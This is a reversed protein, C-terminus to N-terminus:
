KGAFLKDFMKFTYINDIHWGCGMGPLLAMLIKYDVIYVVDSVGYFIGANVSYENLIGVIIFRM